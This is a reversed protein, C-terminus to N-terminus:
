ADTQDYTRRDTGFTTVARFRQPNRTDTHFKTPRHLYWSVSQRQFPWARSESREMSSQFKGHYTKSGPGIDAPRPHQRESFM